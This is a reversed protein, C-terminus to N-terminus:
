SYANPLVVPPEPVESGGAAGVHNLEKVLNVVYGWSWAKKSRMLIGELAFLAAALGTVLTLTILDAGVGEGSELRLVATLVEVALLGAFFASYALLRPVLWKGIVVYGEISTLGSVRYRGDSLKSVLGSEELRRLHYYALSPSSLNLARAVERPGAPGNRLLYAYVKLATGELGRRREEQTM